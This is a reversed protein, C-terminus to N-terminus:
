IAKNSNLINLIKEIDSLVSNYLSIRLHMPKKQMYKRIRKDYLDKEQKTLTVRLNKKIIKSYKSPHQKQIKKRQGNIM